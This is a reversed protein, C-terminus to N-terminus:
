LVYRDGLEIGPSAGSFFDLRFCKKLTEFGKVNDSRGGSQRSLQFVSPGPFPTRQREGVRDYCSGRDLM